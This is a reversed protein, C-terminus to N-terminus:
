RNHRNHSRNYGLSRNYRTSMRNYGEPSGQKEERVEDMLRAIAVPVFAVADYSYLSPTGAHRGSRDWVHVSQTGVIVGGRSDELFETIDAHSGNRLLYRGPLEIGAFPSGKAHEAAGANADLSPKSRATGAANALSEPMKSESM